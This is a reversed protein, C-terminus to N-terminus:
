RQKVVNKRIILNGTEDAVKVVYVGAAVRSFPIAITQVGQALQNKGSFLLKGSADYVLYNYRAANLSTVSITLVDKVPNPYIYVLRKADNKLLIINSYDFTGDNNVIRLRYYNNGAFPQGDTYTHKGIWNSSSTVAGLESFHIGDYSKEVSINKINIAQLVDIYLQNKGNIFEGTFNSLNLPLASGNLTANFNAKTNKLGDFYLLYTHNPLLSTIGTLTGNTSFTRCAIPQPYTQGTPCSSVNYVALRVGQGACSAVSAPTTVYGSISITLTGNTTASTKFAYYANNTVQTGTNSCNVATYQPDVFKNSTAHVLDFNVVTGPTTPAIPFTSPCDDNFLVTYSLPTMESAFLGCSGYTNNQKTTTYFGAKYSANDLSRRDVYSIIAYHMVKEPNLDPASLGEYDDNIHALNLAHGLEHLIVTERDYSGEAPFCPGEEFPLNGVSVGNNRILIDFGKKQAAYVQFPSEVYCVSSFSYTIELVGSAMPPVSTNLNDFVVLNNTDDGIKQVSTTPGESFNIGVSEKWTTFANLFAQKAPDTSFNKGGGATSISYKFTYGGNNNTNMLRPEAVVTTDVTPSFDFAADLVSYFVDLTATSQVTTGDSTVVAIKGTAARSPVKVVIKTDSWSIMYSSTYAVSYDPITLDSNGDKFLVAASGSPTGFGSGNITLTNNAPDNLAGGHVTAPSFSSIAALITQGSQAAKQAMVSAVSFASNVMRFSQRTKQQIITYLNSEIKKYSAFPAYAEDNELDYRLFGQDSGYVDYLIKQTFPSKLNIRNPECFFLGIKGMDLQLLESVEVADPGVSGGQTMVEITGGTINGKFIKYVEVTNATFIMTHAENWFSKKAIVKGEAILTSSTITEDLKVKYLQAQVSTVSLILTTFFSLPQLLIKM